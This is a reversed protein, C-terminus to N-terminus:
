KIKEIEEQLWEIPRETYTKETIDSIAHGVIRKIAYENVNSIKALTVFTVRGDHLKHDDRICLPRIISYYRHRLSAYTMAKGNYHLLKNINQEIAKDYFYKVLPFVKSHIPVERNKGSDTKMGGKFTKNLIDVDEIRLDVLEQPRWGSYCQILIMKVIDNDVNAWFNDLEKNVYRIHSQTESTEISTKMDRAYNKDVLEYEVAYDFMKNFLSKINKQIVPSAKHEVGNVNYTAQEICTRLHRIRVESIKTNYLMHCYKWTTNIHRVTETNLHEFHYKAYREYLENMTIDASFDYAKKNYKMLAQYAENYTAFYAEPKLLKCIPKGHADKGVTVMARFPKRLNRTKLESIQGFGNPLRRHKSSRKQKINTSLTNITQPKLPYGCHPCSIAKDSVQLECEPCKILM